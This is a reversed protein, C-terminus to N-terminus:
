VISRTTGRRKGEYLVGMVHSPLEARLREVEARVARLQEPDAGPAHITIPMVVQGGGGLAHNPVIRGANSPIFMEPGREGVMYAKGTGVHGGVAKGGGFVGGLAGSIANGLPNTVLNRIIISLIDQAIARLTDGLSEARLIADEITGSLADGISEAMREGRQALEDMRSRADRMAEEVGDFADRASWLKEALEGAESDPMGDAMARIQEALEAVEFARFGRAAAASLRSMRALEGSAEEHAANRARAADDMQSWQAQIKDLEVEMARLADVSRGIEDASIGDPADAMLELVMRLREYADEGERAAETLRRQEEVAEALERRYDAGSQTGDDLGDALDELAEVSSGTAADFDKMQQYLRDIEEQNADLETELDSLARVAAGLDSQGLAALFGGGPIGIMANRRNSIMALHEAEARQAELRARLNERITITQDIIASTEELTTAVATERLLRGADIEDYLESYARRARAIERNHYVFAVTAVGLVAVLGLLPHAVLFVLVRALRGFNTVLAGVVITLPAIAATLGIVTTWLRVTEPDAIAVARFWGTFAGAVNELTQGVGADSLALMMGEFASRMRQFAGPLGQMMVDRMYSAVDEDDMRQLEDSLEAIADAGQSVLGAMAPGARLGFIRMMAGTEQAHPELERVIETLSLLRGEADTFNVGLRAMERRVERSPNLLRAIAGRLSTGAMSAQIGTNGMLALAASAENFEIGASRAVPGAYRFAVGLQVLNTNASTISGALSDVASELQGMEMGYGSLVNTVIDAASALDLAGSAALNLVHPVAQMIEAAEFGAMGLFGMADAVQRASYQTTRGLDMAQRRLNEIEAGTARTVAQVRNMSAQFGGAMIGVTAGLAILPAGFRAAMNMGATEMRRGFAIVRASARALGAELPATNAAIVVEASGVVAM